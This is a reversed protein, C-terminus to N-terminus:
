EKVPANFVSPREKDRMIKLMNQIYNGQGAQEQVANATTEELKKEYLARLKANKNLNMKANIIRENLKDLDAKSIAKTASKKALMEAKEIVKNFDEPSLKQRLVDPTTQNEDNGLYLYYSGDPETEIRVATEKAKEDFWLPGDVPLITVPVSPNGVTGMQELLKKKEEEATAIETAQNMDDINYSEINAKYQTILSEKSTKYKNLINQKKEFLLIEADAEAEAKKQKAALIRPDTEMEANSIATDLLFKKYEPASKRKIESNFRATDVAVNRSIDRATEAKNITNLAGQYEPRTQFQLKDLERKNELGTTFVSKETLMPKSLNFATQEAEVKKQLNAPDTEFALVDAREKQASLRNIDQTAAHQALSMAVADLKQRQAKKAAAEANIMDGFPTNVVFDKVWGM